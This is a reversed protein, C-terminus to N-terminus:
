DGGPLRGLRFGAVSRGRLKYVHDRPSYQRNWQPDATDLLRVWKENAKVPPLVFDISEHHANFLLFLTDGVLRNGDEDTEEMAEGNLLVGLCRVFHADWANDDMEKGSPDFWAIDKVGVGRISRGQYFKRRALVPQEKFLHIMYRTFEVLDRQTETLDWHFWSLENDQCYANNNGKQTRGMEDGGCIMPVGESLMLTAIFNRKQKERL